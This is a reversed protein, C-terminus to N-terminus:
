PVDLARVQEPARRVARARRRDHHAIADVQLIRRAASWGHLFPHHREVGISSFHNPFVLEVDELAVNRRMADSPCRGGRIRFRAVDVREADAGREIASDAAVALREPLSRDAFFKGCEGGVAPPRHRRDDVAIEDDDARCHRVPAALGRPRMADDREVFTSALDDYTAFGPPRGYSVAYAAGIMAVILPVRSSM